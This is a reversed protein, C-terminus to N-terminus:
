PQIVLAPDGMLTWGLIVDLLEPHEQALEFKADQMAQGITMGQATLRPMILIGLAEESSSDTRTSAGMVAVAGRDGAFLFSQVLTKNLPDVYYTNFCGWQIVVFPRGANTLAEANQTQFLRSFSWTTQASHGTYSVFAVGKNLANILQKQAASVSLDDMHIQQVSWDGPLSASMGQSINKFSETGDFMDSAFVATRGYDKGAYALTKAVMLDLEASTRVPFRGIALDPIKNNDVDAYLPDVPVFRTTPGTATYLSPIFSLSNRGLYNRYDYTDGGVLLVYQTGLHKQAYAIYQRIAQPDFVGYSYRAYVDNVDVISVTLGQARRAEILPQLGDIFDPHAIILYQAPQQLDGAPRAAELVPSYLAEAAAVLYTAVKGNGAFSASFTSGTQQIKIGELRTIRAGDLRYVVVNKSPLNTVTFLKGTATFAVRGDQARFSRAYGVSFRDLTIADFTAGTDAPLTLELTNAGQHLTGAPLSARITHEVMGDFSEEAVFVGNVRVLIHHDPDTAPWDNSGWLVLQLSQSASADVLDNLQFTFNWGKRTTTLMSTDYWPDAGPAYNAYARQNNVEGLFLAVVSNETFDVNPKQPASNNAFAIKWLEDFKAKNSILLVSRDNMKSQTGSELKTWKMTSGAEPKVTNDETKTDAETKTDDNAKGPTDTIKQAREDITKATNTVTQSTDVFEQGSEEKKSNNCSALLIIAAAIVSLTKM